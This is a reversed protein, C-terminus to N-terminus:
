HRILMEPDTQASALWLIPNTVGDIFAKIASHKDYKLIDLCGM